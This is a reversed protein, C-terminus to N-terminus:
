RAPGAGGKGRGRGSGKGGGKGKGKGKGKGEGEPDARRDVAHYIPFAPLVVTVVVARGELRRVLAGPRSALTSLFSADAIASLM